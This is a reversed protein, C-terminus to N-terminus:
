VSLDKELKKVRHFDAIVHGYRSVAKEYTLGSLDYEEYNIEDDVDIMKRFRAPNGYVVTKETVNNTVVSGLGVVAERGITLGSNLIVGLGIRAGFEIKTREPTFQRRQWVMKRDNAPVFYNGIFVLDKVVTNFGLNSHSGLRVRDGIVVGNGELVVNPGIRCDRGIKTGNRIFTFPGVITNEGIEVDEEIVVFPELRANNAIRNKLFAGESIGAWKQSDDDKIDSFKIATM